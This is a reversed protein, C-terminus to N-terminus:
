CKKEDAFIQKRTWCKNEYVRQKKLSPKVSDSYLWNTTWLCYPKKFCFLGLIKMTNGCLTSNTNQLWKKFIWSTKEFTSNHLHQEDIKFINKIPYKQNQM